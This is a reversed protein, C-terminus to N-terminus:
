SWTRLNYADEAMLRGVLARPESVGTAIFIKMGPRIQALAAEPSVIRDNWAHM